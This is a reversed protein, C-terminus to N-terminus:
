KVVAWAEPKRCLWEVKGWFMKKTRYTKKKMYEPRRYSSLVVIWTYWSDRYRNQMLTYRMVFHVHCLLTDRM